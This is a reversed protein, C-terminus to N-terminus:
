RVEINLEGNHMCLIQTGPFSLLQGLHLTVPINSLELTCGAPKVTKVPSAAPVAIALAIAAIAVVVAAMIWQFAKKM